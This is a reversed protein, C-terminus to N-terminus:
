SQKQDGKEGRKVLVNEKTLEKVNSCQSNPPFLKGVGSLRERETLRDDCKTMTPELPLAM